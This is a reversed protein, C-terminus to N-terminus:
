ESDASSLVSYLGTANIFGLAVLTPIWTGTLASLLGNSLTIITAAGVIVDGNATQQQKPM